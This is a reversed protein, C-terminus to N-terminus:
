KAAVAVLHFQTRFYIVGASIAPSAMCSEGMPNKSVIEFKPGTRVVYIDGDESSFYIKGDGAVPSATFGTTGNGLREQFVRKGSKAEYCFLVGNNKCSYLYDGYVLPTIMYAGDRPVSWAVFQNSTEDTKLSIDGAANLRIAYIPAMPGHANTIFVMGQALVPTPVPIDGGGKLQWLEKGTSVDYSGIQKSGNIIMQANKGDSQVTPTGWTPVDNRPTRWIESGDKINLAAVFSGNLIDCQILVRDQYLTPSSGFEWQADPAVYYASDLVGLDKKWLQKGDMDFCFLGESGFFAVLHSGDMALTSNAHTSKPHRKIKPVGSFVTKEWVIKGSQKDLCYVVYRHSSSDEVSGIDGYLGVKLDHKEAASIATSLYIRNGWVIPSSHGLGPIATKWLINQSKVADWSSSLPYGEAIGSANSGRFSPWNTDGSNKQGAAPAILFALLLLIWTGFIITQRNV